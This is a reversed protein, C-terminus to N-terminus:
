NGEKSGIGVSARQWSFGGADRLEEGTERARRRRDAVRHCEKCLWAVQLPDTDEYRSHHAETAGISGCLQCIESRAARGDRCANNLHWRHKKRIEPDVGFLDQEGSM